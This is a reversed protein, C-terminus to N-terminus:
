QRKPAKRRREEPNKVSQGQETENGESKKKEDTNNAPHQEEGEDEEGYLERKRTLFREKLEDLFFNLLLINKKNHFVIACLTQNRDTKKSFKFQTFLSFLFNFESTTRRYHESDTCFYFIFNNERFFEM